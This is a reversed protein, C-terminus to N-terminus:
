ELVHLLGKEAVLIQMTDENVGIAQVKKATFQVNRDIGDCFVLRGHEDSLIGVGLMDTCFFDGSGVRVEKIEKDIVVANGNRMLAVSAQRSNMQFYQSVDGKAIGQTTMSELNIVQLNCGRIGVVLKGQLIECFLVESGSSIEVTKLTQTNLSLLGINVATSTSQWFILTNSSYEFHLSPNYPFEHLLLDQEVGWVQISAQTQFIILGNPQDISKIESQKAKVGRLIQTKSVKGEQIDALSIKFFLISNETARKLIIVLDGSSFFCKYAHEDSQTLPFSYFDRLQDYCVVRGNSDLTVTM